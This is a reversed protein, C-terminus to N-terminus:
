VFLTKTFDWQGLSENTPMWYLNVFGDISQFFIGNEEKIVGWDRPCSNGNGYFILASIESRSHFGIDSYNGSSLTININDWTLNTKEVFDVILWGEEQIFKIVPTKGREQCGCLGIILLLFVLGVVPLNKLKPFDNKTM